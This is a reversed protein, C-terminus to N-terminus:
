LCGLVEDVLDSLDPPRAAVVDGGSVHKHEFFQLAPKHKANDYRFILEGERNQYQYAYSVKEIKYRADVYEKIFLSSGDVLVIHINIVAQKGARIEQRMDISESFGYNEIKEIAQRLNRLYESLSM